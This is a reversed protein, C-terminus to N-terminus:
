LSLSHNTCHAPTKQWECYLPLEDLFLVGCHALSIEGPRPQSGGGVLAAASATHHPARFPRNLSLPKGTISQVIAVEIKEQETLPPLIGPLRSALLTKGSGPPGSFLLSHNGAAAIELARRAALQGRVDCLDGCPTGEGPTPDTHQPLPLATQGNLHATVALISSAERLDDGPVLSSLGTNASPLILIRQAGACHIAAPLAADVARLEGSLGLEGIFEYGETSNPPIQGSALLIGIAIPLDFRGGEKPLDAPALNVVIRSVPFDFGSNILASRVRDRSERVTAEPLGVIQFGPLGASLHTEVTVLPAHVGLRARSYVTALPM